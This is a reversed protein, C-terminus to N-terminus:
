ERERIWEVSEESDSNFTDKMFARGFRSKPRDEIDFFKSKTQGNDEIVQYILAIAKDDIEETNPQSIVSTSPTSPEPTVTDPGSGTQSHISLGLSPVRKASSKNEEAKTM